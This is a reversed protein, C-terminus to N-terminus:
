KALFERRIPLSKSRTLGLGTQCLSLWPRSDSAGECNFGDGSVIPIKAAQRVVFRKYCFRVSHLVKSVSIQRAFFYGNRFLLSLQTRKALSITVVPTILLLFLSLFSSLFGVPDISRLFLVQHDLSRSNQM